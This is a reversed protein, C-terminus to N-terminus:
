RQHGKRADGRGVWRLAAHLERHWRSWGADRSREIRVSASVDLVGPARAGAGPDLAVVFRIQPTLRALALAGDAGRGVGVVAVTATDVQDFRRAVAPLLDRVLSTLAAQHSVDAWGAGPNRYGDFSPFVSVADRYSGSDPLGALLRDVSGVQVWDDASGPLDHLFIIVARRGHAHAPAYVRAIEPRHDLAAADYVITGVGPRDTSPETLAAAGPQGYRITEAAVDVTAPGYWALAATLAGVFGYARWARSPRRFRDLAYGAPVAVIHGWDAMQHHVPVAVLAIGFVLLRIRRDGARSALAGLAAAIAMSAGYDLNQAARVLMPVGTWGLGGAIVAVLTSATAHGVAVVAIARTHGARREYVAVSAFLCPPMTAAMFWNRTLFFSTVLTWYRGARLSPLGFSGWGAVRDPLEHVLVGTLLATVLVAFSLTFAVWPFRPPVDRGLSARLPDRLWRVHGSIAANVAGARWAM